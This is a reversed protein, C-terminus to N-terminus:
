QPFDPILNALYTKLSNEDEHIKQIPILHGRQDDPPIEEAWTRLCKIQEPSLIKPLTKSKYVFIILDACAM